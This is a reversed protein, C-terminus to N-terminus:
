DRYLVGYRDIRGVLEQLKEMGILNQPTYGGTGLARAIVELLRKWEEIFDASQL